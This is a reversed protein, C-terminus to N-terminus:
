RYYGIKIRLLVKVLLVVTFQLCLDCGRSRGLCVMVLQLWVAEGIAVVDIHVITIAIAVIHNVITVTFLVYAATDRAAPVLHVLIILTHLLHHYRSPVIISILLRLPSHSYPSPSVRHILM